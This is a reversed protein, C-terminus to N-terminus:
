GQKCCTVSCCLVNFQRADFASKIQNDMYINHIKELSSRMEKDEVGDNIAQALKDVSLTDLELMKAYGHREARLVNPKQDNTMPVGILVTKHYIAEMVSGLGGHTVFVKLNPHALLDQQPVWKTLKVNSPLGPIHDENWKWLVQYKIKRFVKLFEEKRKLSMDGPKVTSGFSIYVVGETHEDMFQKLDDPLPKAPKCNIGGIDIVNPTLPQANHTIHHSVQLVLSVRDYVNLVDHFSMNAKQELLALVFQNECKQGNYIIIM